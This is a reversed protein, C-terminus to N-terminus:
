VKEETGVGRLAIGVQVAICRGVGLLSVQALFVSVTVGFAESLFLSRMGADLAADM